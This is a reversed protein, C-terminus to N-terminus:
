WTLAIHGNSADWGNSHRKLIALFMTLSSFIITPGNPGHWLLRFRISQPMGEQQLFKNHRQKNLGDFSAGPGSKEV